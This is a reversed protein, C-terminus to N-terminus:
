IHILSLKLATVAPADVTPQSQALDLNGGTTPMAATDYNDKLLTPICFIPGLTGNGSSLKADCEDALDLAHPNLTLIANTHNNLAEIRSLFSSVVERCTTLGTYLDHHVSAITAERPEFAITQMPLALVATWTALTYM